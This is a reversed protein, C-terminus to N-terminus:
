DSSPTDNLISSLNMKKDPQAVTSGPSSIHQTSSRPRTPLTMRLPALEQPAMSRPVVSPDECPKPMPSEAPFSERFSPLMGDRELEDGLRDFSPRRSSFSNSRSVSDTPTPPLSNFARSSERPSTTYHSTDSRLSPASEPASETPSCAQWQMGTLSGLSHYREADSLIAPRATSPMPYHSYNRPTPRPTPAPCPPLPLQAIHQRPPCPQMHHPHHGYGPAYASYGRQDNRKEQRKKRNQAGNWWNKVANDSRGQLYRACEAWKKGHAEVFREIHHGEEVTIPSHDLGPKLNQHYRERCQKASRGSISGSLQVWNHPEDEPVLNLLAQDELTSWPGRKPAEDDSGM